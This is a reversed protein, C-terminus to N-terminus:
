GPTLLAPGRPALDAVVGAGLGLGCGHLGPFRALGRPFHHGLLPPGLVGPPRLRAECRGLRREQHPLSVRRRRFAERAPGRPSRGGEWSSATPGSAWRLGSSASPQSTSSNLGGASAAGSPATPGSGAVWCKRGGDSFTPACSRWGQPPGVWAGRISPPEKPPHPREARLAESRAALTGWGGLEERCATHYEVACSPCAESRDLVPVLEMRCLPCVPRSAKSKRRLRM